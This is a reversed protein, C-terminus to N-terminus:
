RRVERVSIIAAAPAPMNITSHDTECMSANARAEESLYRLRSSRISRESHSPLPLAAGDYAAAGKGAAKRLRGGRERVRTGSRRKAREASIRGRAQRMGCSKARTFTLFM